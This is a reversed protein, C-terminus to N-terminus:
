LNLLSTIRLQNIKDLTLNQEIYSKSSDHAFNLTDNKWINNEIHKIELVGGINELEPM